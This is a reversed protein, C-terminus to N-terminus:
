EGKLYDALRKEKNIKRQNMAEQSHLDTGPESTGSNMVKVMEAGAVTKKNSLMPATEALVTFMGNVMAESSEDESLEPKSNMVRFESVVHKRLDHGMLNEVKDVSEKKADLSNLIDTAEKRQKLAENIANKMVTLSSANELQTKLTEVQGKLEDNSNKMKAMEMKDKESEKKDKDMKEDTANKTKKDEEDMYKEAKDVDENVVRFSSNGFKVLTFDSVQISGDKNLIRVDEGARGRGKGLLAVHNYLINRQIGDYKEGEPSVGPVWSIKSRYAASQDVLKDSSNSAKTIRDVAEKETILIDATLMKTVPDYKPEGAINGVSDINGMKQWIHGISIPKGELSKISEENQLEDEPVYL